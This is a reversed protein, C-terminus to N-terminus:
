RFGADTIMQNCKDKVRKKAKLLCNLTHGKARTVGKCLREYDGRCVKLVDIQAQARREVQSYVEGYNSRCSSSLKADNQKLCDRIRNNGLRASKCYKNIDKGCTAALKDIADAYSLTEASVSGAFTVLFAAVISIRIIPKKKM